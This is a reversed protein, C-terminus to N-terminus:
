VFPIRYFQIKGVDDLNKGHPSTWVQIELFHKGGRKTREAKVSIGAIKFYM